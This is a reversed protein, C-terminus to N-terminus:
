VSVEVKKVVPFRGHFGDGGQHQSDQEKGWERSMCMFVFTSMVGFLLEFGVGFGELSCPRADPIVAPMNLKLDFMNSVILEGTDVTPLLVGFALLHFLVREFTAHFITHQFDAGDGNLELVFVLQKGDASEPLERANCKQMFSRHRKLLFM